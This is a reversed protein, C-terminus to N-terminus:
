LEVSGHGSCLVSSGFHHCELSLFPFTTVLEDRRLPEPRTHTGYGGLELHLVEEYNRLCRYLIKTTDNIIFMIM